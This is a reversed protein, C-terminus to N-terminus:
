HFIDFVSRRKEKLKSAILSPIRLFYGMFFICFYVTYRMYKSLIKSHLIKKSYLRLNFQCVEHTESQACRRHVNKGRKTVPVHKSTQHSKGM